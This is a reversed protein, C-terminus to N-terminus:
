RISVPRSSQTKMGAGAAIAGAAVQPRQDFVGADNAADQAAQVAAIIALHDLLGGDGAHQALRDVAIRLFRWAAACYM